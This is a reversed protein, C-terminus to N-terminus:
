ITDITILDNDITTEDTDIRITYYPEIKRYTILELNAKGTTINVDLVNIRYKKGRIVLVDNLEITNILEAPLYASIKVIRSQKDYISMIYNKWYKNFLSVENEGLTNYYEDFESGFNISQKLTTSNSISNSPRYYKSVSGHTSDIDFAMATPYTLEEYNGYFLIPKTLKPKQDQDALWGWSISTTTTTDSQDPSHEFMVKEFKPNINYAGGDFALLDRLYEEQTVDQIQENGFEDGTIENSNLIAFTSPEEYKFQILSYLNNREVDIKATDVFKTIDITNGKLYYDDLPEIVVNGDSDPYATLNFMNFLSTLFDIVKMKPFNNELTFTTDPNIDGSTWTVNAPQALYDDFEIDYEYVVTDVEMSLTNSETGTVEITISTSETSPSDEFAPEEAKYDYWFSGGGKKEIKKLVDGQSDKIKVTYEDESDSATITVKTRTFTDVRYYLSTSTLTNTPEFIYMGENEYQGKEKQLFLYLKRLEINDLFDGTFNIGYHEGIIDILVPVRLAGRLDKYYVGYKIDTDTPSATNVNRSETDGEIPSIGDKYSDYYYYNQTSIFPFILDRPNDIDDVTGTYNLTDGDVWYGATFGLFVNSPTYEFNFSDILPATVDLKNASLDSLLDDAILSKLDVMSSYFVLDYSYVKNNRLSAGLLTIRGKKYTNGNVRLEATIKFRADFSNTISQNYYHKFIKNNNKSAPVTFKRSFTLFLKNIDRVDQISDKINIDEFDFLEVKQGNIYLDVNRRM